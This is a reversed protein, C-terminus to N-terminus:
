RDTANSEANADEKFLEDITVNLISALKAFTDLRPNTKGNEWQSVASGTVGLKEAVCEQTLGANKRASAISM